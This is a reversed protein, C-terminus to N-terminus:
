RRRTPAPSSCRRATPRCPWRPRTARPRGPPRRGEGDALDVVAVGAKGWLSVFLRKGDPEPLCAYPYSDKDLAVTRRKSPSTWRCSARRRRGLHRRRVADQGGRRRGAGAVVFKDKRGAVAITATTAVALGDDFAFAHVVEFEGGSAFLTKGDPSFCLGYFTQDVASAASSASAQESHLDVVVIEHDGYGAHLVALWNGSPTCPSTSPFTASPSSSAPRGCRGSTPCSSWATPSSAPCSLAHNRAHPRCHSPVPRYVSLLFAATFLARLM